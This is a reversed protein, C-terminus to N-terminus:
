ELSVYLFLLLENPLQLLFLLFLLFQLLDLTTDEMAGQSLRYFLLHELHLPELVHVAVNFLYGYVLDNQISAGLRSSRGPCVRGSRVSDTGPNGHGAHGRGHRTSSSCTAQGCLLYYPVATM